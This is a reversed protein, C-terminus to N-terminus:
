LAGTWAALMAALREFWSPTGPSGPLADWWRELARRELRLVSEESVGAPPPVLVALREYVFARLKGDTRALLHWLTIADQERAEALVTALAAAGGREFDLRYLAAKLSEGARDSFPTGPAFGPRTYASMNFPVVSTAGLRDLEVWGVTVHILSGGGPDVALTYACGLDVATASPTEVYFLRPPASIRATIGGRDLALRHETRTAALLRVRSDPALDVEGIRGVALRVRSAHDTALRDPAIVPNGVTTEVRWGQRQLLALWLAAGVALLFAAAVAPRVGWASVPAALGRWRGGLGWARAPTLPLPVSQQPAAGLRAAIGVWLDPPPQIERPLAKVRAVLQEDLQARANGNRTM